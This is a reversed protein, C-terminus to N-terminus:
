GNGVRRLNRLTWHDHRGLWSALTRGCVFVHSHTAPTAPAASCRPSRHERPPTLRTQSSPDDSQDFGIVPPSDGNSKPPLDLWQDWGVFRMWKPTVVWAHGVAVRHVRDQEHQTGAAVPVGQVRRANARTRRRMPAEDFPRLCTHELLRPCARERVVVHEDADRPAPQGTRRSRRRHNVRTDTPARACRGGNDLGRVLAM